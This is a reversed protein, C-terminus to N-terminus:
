RASSGCTQLSRCVQVIKSYFLTKRVCLVASAVATAGWKISSLKRIRLVTASRASNASECVSGVVQACISTWRPYMSAAFCSRPRTPLPTACPRCDSRDCNFIGGIFPTHFTWVSHCLGEQEHSHFANIAEDRTLKEVETAHPGGFFSKDALQLIQGMLGGDPSISIGYCYRKEKGLTTHRCICAVRVISNTFSFIREVDEIPIVQGFHIKKMKRTLLRSLITRIFKPANNLRDLGELAEDIGQPNAFEEIFKRRRVDSLLDDSYNKAHLYWKEGEGHKVCFECM